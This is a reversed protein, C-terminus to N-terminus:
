QLKDHTYKYVINLAEDRETQNQLDTIFIGTNATFVNISLENEDNTVPQKDFLLRLLFDALVNEEGKVYKIDYDFQSLRELWRVFKASKRKLTHQTLLSTVSAQYIKFTFIPTRVSVKGLTRLGM